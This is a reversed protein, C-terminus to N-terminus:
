QILSQSNNPYKDKTFDNIVFIIMILLPAIFASAAVVAIIRRSNILPKKVLPDGCLGCILVGDSM